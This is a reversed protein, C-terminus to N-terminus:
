CLVNSANRKAGKMKRSNMLIALVCANKRIQTPGGHIAIKCFSQLSFSHLELEPWYSGFSSVLKIDDLLSTLWPVKQSYRYYRSLRVCHNQQHCKGWWTLRSDVRRKNIIRRDPAPLSHYSVTTRLWSKVFTQNMTAHVGPPPIVCGLFQVRGLGQVIHGKPATLNSWCM